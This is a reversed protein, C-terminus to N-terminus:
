QSISNVPSTIIIKNAEIKYNFQTSEKFINLVEIISEKTFTGTYRIDNLPLSNNEINVNYYRELKKIINEFRENKFSLQGNIWSIHQEVDSKSVKFMKNKAIVEQGPFLLLKKENKSTESPKSVQISGEQLVVSSSNEDHYSSVNFRTGLVSIDMDRTHVVFTSAKNKAVNFYAEGDLFVERMKAKVFSVQYKLKSGTNIFVTTGDFMKLQFRKGYPVILENYTIKLNTANNKVYALTGGEVKAIINGKENRIEDNINEKIVRFTGDEFKLVIQNAPIEKDTQLIVYLGITIGIFLLGVAAYKFIAKYLKTTTRKKQLTISKIQQYAADTNIDNYNEDLRQNIIVIEKFEERNEPSRLWSQLSKLEEDSITNTIYRIIIDEL